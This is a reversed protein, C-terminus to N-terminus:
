AAPSRPAAGTLLAVLYALGALVFVMTFGSAMAILIGVISAIVSAGGNVGFAWPVLPRGHEGLLALGSPFPMGMVFAAPALVLVTLAIRWPLALSLAAEFFPPLGIALGAILVLVLLLARRLTARPDKSKGALMAGAGSFLLFTVLVVSLAYGPNGLFLVFRQMAVIEVLIYGAGLGFFYLIWRGSGPAALGERRFMWLPVLVLLAVLLLSEGLVTGLMLLGIPAGGVIGTYEDPSQDSQESGFGFLGGIADGWKDYRFFFPNDDTVPDLNYLYRERFEVDTGARVAAFYDTVPGETAVGPAYMLHPRPRRGIGQAWDVYQEYLAVQQPTFPSRKVLLSGFDLGVQQGNMEGRLGEFGVLLIHDAPNEAGDRRLADVAIAALRLTERPPDFRLRLVSVVGDETLHGIFDDYAQATYLYSESMVYSGSALAAYTDTGTMQIIDYREESRRLWSRGEDVFVQVGPLHYRDGSLERYEDLMLGATTQNIEVGTFDVGPEGAAAALNTRAAAQLIDIGGGIGIALVKPPRQRFLMYALGEKEAPDVTREAPGLPLVTPADGDQYVTRQTTTDDPGPGIVDIRCLPDWRSHEVVLDPFNALQQAMAKSPAVPVTFVATPSVIALVLAAVALTGGIGAVPGRSEDAGQEHVAAASGRQAFAWCGAFALATAALVTGEGGFARLAPVYIMAGVASGLMNVGYVRGVSAGADGLALAVVLGAFVMPLILVAYDLAATAIGLRSHAAEPQIRTIVAYSVLVSLGFLLSFLGLRRSVHGGLWSKRCALVTGGAAFGLLTFTVVLYTLHHWLMVSFIRTQVLQLLLVAASVLAVGLLRGAGCATGAGRADM